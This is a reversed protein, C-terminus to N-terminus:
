MNAMETVSMAMMVIATDLTGFFLIMLATVLSMEYRATTNQHKHPINLTISSSVYFFAWGIM